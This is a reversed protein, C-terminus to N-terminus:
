SAQAQSKFRKFEGVNSAGAMRWAESEVWDMDLTDMNADKAGWSSSWPDYYVTGSSTNVYIRSHGKFGEWYSVSEIVPREAGFMSAPENESAVYEDLLLQIIKATTRADEVAQHADFEIGFYQGITVLKHNEVEPKPIRERAMLMGDISGSPTFQHGHRAYLEKMFKDDFNIVNWGSVATNEFFDFIDDFVEHESPQGGLFDNDLGTLEIIKESVDFGPNVYLHFTEDEELRMGSGINFRVAAIEIIRDNVPSLGTTELDYVILSEQGQLTEKIESWLKQGTWRVKSAKRV